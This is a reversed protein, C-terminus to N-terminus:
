SLLIPKNNLVVVSLLVVVTKEYRYPQQCVYVEIYTHKVVDFVFIVFTAKM